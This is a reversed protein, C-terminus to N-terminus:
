LTELLIISIWILGSPAIIVLWPPIKFNTLAIYAGLALVLDKPELIAVTWIDRYLTAFLIGVVTANVSILISQVIPSSRLHQWFPLAGLMFLYSPLFFVVLSLVAMLIPPYPTQLSAGIFASFSFLPGPMAQTLAYGVLFTDNSLWQESVFYSHLLPLVSHGGGFVFSGVWYFQNLISFLPANFLRMLLYFACLGLVFAFLHILGLKLSLQKFNLIVHKPRISASKERLILDYFFGILISLMITAFQVIFYNFLLNIAMGFFLLCITFNTRCMKSAMEYLAKAVIAVTMVKLCHIVGNPIEIFDNGIVLAMLILVAATPLTFAFWAIFAGFYGGKLYGIAMGVQSSSAGPLIHSLSVLESYASDTLWKKDRVFVQHFFAIHALPGGFSICGLKFFVAFVQYYQKKLMMNITTQGKLGNEVAHNEVYCDEFKILYLVRYRM